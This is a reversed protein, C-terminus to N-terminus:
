DREYIEERSLPTFDSVPLPNDLLEDIFDPEGSPEDQLVIVRVQRRLEARHQEPIEIVGNHVTALFEIAKM